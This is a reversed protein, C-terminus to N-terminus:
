LRVTETGLGRGRANAEGLAIGFGARGNLHDIGHLGCNGIPAWGPREYVTFLAEGPRDATELWRAEAAETVPKLEAGLTRIVAPDNIWRQYLPVLDRRLPGL